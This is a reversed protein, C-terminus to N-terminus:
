KTPFVRFFPLLINGAPFVSQFSFFKSWCWMYTPFYIKDCSLVLEDDFYGEHVSSNFTLTTICYTSGNIISQFRELRFQSDWSLEQDYRPLIYTWFCVSNSKTSPVSIFLCTTFFQDFHFIEVLKCSKAFCITPFINILM